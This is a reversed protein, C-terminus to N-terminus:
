AGEAIMNEVLCVAEIEYQIGLSQAKTSERALTAIIQRKSEDLLTIHINAILGSDLSPISSGYATGVVAWYGPESALVAWFYATDQSNRCRVRVLHESAANGINEQLPLVARGIIGGLQGSRPILVDSSTILLSDIHPTKSKSILYEGKPYVEFVASSSLFPVGFDADDVKLRSGRNPEFVRDVVDGIRVSKGLSLAAAGHAVKPSHYFADMRRLVDTSSVKRYPRCANLTKWGILSQFTQIAQHRKQSALVRQAAAMEILGSIRAEFDTDFRPVPLDAIHEPEIHQIIAGYTGSVVLPVGYKSSLFAYLYGPPIRSEDPVVRLVHESCALGAMDPRVYAMRGITGSRTILTWKEGLIFRPNRQVQKKSILPLTSLDANLIDSSGLFPVGYEPSDVWLRSERGAHFIGTTVDKLKEKPANLRKLADRAELAGSMYPNCDLRRGGEEMWSSRVVRANKFSEFKM